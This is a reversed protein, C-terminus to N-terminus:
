KMSKFVIKFKNNVVFCRKVIKLNYTLQLATEDFNGKNSVAAIKEFCSHVRTKYNVLFIITVVRFCITVNSLQLKMDLQWIVYLILMM